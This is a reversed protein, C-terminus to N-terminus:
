HYAIFASHFFGSLYIGWIMMCCIHKKFNPERVPIDKSFPDRIRRIYDDRNPYIDDLHDISVVERALKWPRRRPLPTVTTGIRIRQTHVAIAALAVWPDVMPLPWGAIHDWIFFGDWGSTEADQALIALARADGYSGFNPLDIGFKM